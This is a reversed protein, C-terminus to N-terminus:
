PAEKLIKMCSKKQKVAEWDPFQDDLYAPIENWMNNAWNIWEDCHHYKYWGPQKEVWEPNEFGYKKWAARIDKTIKKRDPEKKEVLSECGEHVATGFDLFPSPESLDIKDIQVLKHRYPCEKWMRIESFSIHPKGTPFPKPEQINLLM